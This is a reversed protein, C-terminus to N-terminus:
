LNLYIRYRVAYCQFVLLSKRLRRRSSSKCHAIHTDTYPTCFIMFLITLTHHPIGEIFYAFTDQKHMLLNACAIHRHYKLQIHAAAVAYKRIEIHFIIEHFDDIM